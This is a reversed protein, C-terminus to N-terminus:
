DLIPKVVLNYTLGSPDPHIKFFKINRGILSEQLSKMDSDKAKMGFYISEVCEQAYVIPTSQKEEKALTDLILRYECEYSWEPSKMFCLQKAPQLKDKRMADINKMIDYPKSDYNVDAHHYPAISQILKEHNFGICFGTHWNSYHSWMLNNKVNKSLCLILARCMRGFLIYRLHKSPSDNFVDPKDMLQAVSNMIADTIQSYSMGSRILDMTFDTNHIIFEVLSSGSAWTIPFNTSCDFPDNFTSGTSFWLQNKILSDIHSKCFHRYKYLEQM